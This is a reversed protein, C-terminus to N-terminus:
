SSRSTKPRARVRRRRGGARREGPQRHHHRDRRELQDRRRERHLHLCRDRQFEGAAYLLLQRRSQADPQRPDDDVRAAGDADNRSRRGHRERARRRGARHAHRGRQRQLQRRGRGARHGDADDQVGRRGLLEDVRLDRDPVRRARRRLHVRRQRRGARRGAGAVPSEPAGDARLVASHHRLQGVGHPVVRCLDHEGHDRGADLVLRAALGHRDRQHLDAQALQIGTNTWLHGIHPGVNQPGKYFRLGTIYGSM